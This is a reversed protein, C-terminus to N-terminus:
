SMPRERRYCPNLERQPRGLLGAIVFPQPAEAKGDDSFLGLTLAAGGAGGLLSSPLSPFPAGFNGGLKRGAEIYGQTTAFTTHGGRWQIRMPDDGRVAMWTLCTHRLDHFRLALRDDTGDELLLDARRAIDAWKLATAVDKRLLEARDEDPPLHLVRGTKKEDALIKLLPVITPELDFSRARRTKTKVDDGSKRDVQKTISLRAHVEDVDDATIAALENARAGIYIALAYTRRRYLPILPCGLLAVAEAPYLVCHEKDEEDDDPGQVDAAPNDDRLGFGGEPGLFSSATSDSLIM